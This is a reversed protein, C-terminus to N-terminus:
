PHCPPFGDPRPIPFLKMTWLVYGGDEHGKMRSIMANSQSSRQAPKWAGRAAKPLAAAVTRPGYSLHNSRVGSLRSTPPEVGGPGVLGSQRHSSTRRTLPGYSLQSLAHKALMLDDTRDRRAGGNEQGMRRNLARNMSWSHLCRKVKPHIRPMPREKVNHIPKKLRHRHCCPESQRRIIPKLDDCIIDPQTYNDLKSALPNSRVPRHSDNTTHVRLRSTLADPPHRPM